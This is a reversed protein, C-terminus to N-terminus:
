WPRLSWSDNLEELRWILVQRNLEEGSLGGVRQGTSHHVAKWVEEPGYDEGVDAVMVDDVLGVAHFETGMPHIQLIEVTFVTDVLVTMAQSRGSM